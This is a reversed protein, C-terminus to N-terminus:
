NKERVSPVQPFEVKYESWRLDAKYYDTSIIQANSKFASKWRSFDNNRSEETGADSRTRIMFRDSSRRIDDENGEPNNRLLFATNPDGEEGYYFM